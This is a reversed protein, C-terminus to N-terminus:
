KDSRTQLLFCADLWTSHVYNTYTSTTNAVMLFPQHVCQLYLSSDITWQFRTRSNYLLMYRISPGKNMECLWFHSQREYSVPYGQRFVQQNERLHLNCTREWLDIPRFYVQRLLKCKIRFKPNPIFRVWIEDVLVRFRISLQRVVNLLNKQSTTAALAPAVCMRCLQYRSLLTARVGSLIM